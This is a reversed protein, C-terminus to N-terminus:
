KLIQIGGIVPLPKKTGNAANIIGIIALVAFVYTVLSLVWLVISILAWLFTIRFFIAVMISSLIREIIVWAITFIFLVLGQNTHYKLFKSDKPGALLPILFIIYALIGMMKNDEADKQDSSTGSYTSSNNTIITNNNQATATDGEKSDTSMVEGCSQCFKVNDEVKNGCNGCFKM